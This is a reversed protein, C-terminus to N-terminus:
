LLYPPIGVQVHEVFVQEESGDGHVEQEPAGLCPGEPFSLEVLEFDEQMAVYSANELYRHASHLFFSNAVFFYTLHKIRDWARPIHNRCPLHVEDSFHNSSGSIPWGSVHDCSAAVM